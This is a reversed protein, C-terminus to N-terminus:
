ADHMVHGHDYYPRVCLKFPRPLVNQSRRLPGISKRVQKPSLLYLKFFYIASAVMFICQKFYTNRFLQFFGQFTFSYFNVKVLVSAQFAVIKNCVFEKLLIM